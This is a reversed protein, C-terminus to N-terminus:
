KRIASGGCGVSMAGFRVGFFTYVDIIATYDGTLTDSGTASYIKCQTDIDQKEVQRVRSKLILIRELPNEFIGNSAILIAFEGFKYEDGGLFSLGNPILLPIAVAILVVLTISTIIILKKM